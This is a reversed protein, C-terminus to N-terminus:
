APLPRTLPAKRRAGLASPGPGASFSAHQRAARVRGRRCLSRPAPRWWDVIGSVSRAAGGTPSGRRGQARTTGWSALPPARGAAHASALASEAANRAAQATEPADAAGAAGADAGLGPAHHPEENRGTSRPAQLEVSSNRASPKGLLLEEIRAIAARQEALGENVHAISKQVKKELAAVLRPVAEGEEADKESPDLSFTQDRPIWSFHRKARKPPWVSDVIYAEQGTLDARARARLSLLYMLYDRPNHERMVHRDFGQSGQADGDLKARGLNCM